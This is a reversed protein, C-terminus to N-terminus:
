WYQIYLAPLSGNSEISDYHARNPKSGHDVRTSEQSPRTLFTTTGVEAVESPWTSRPERPRLFVHLM